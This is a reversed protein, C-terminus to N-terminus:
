GGDVGGSHAWAVTLGRRMPCTAAKWVSSQNLTSYMAARENAHLTSMPQTSDITSSASNKASHGSAFAALSSSRESRWTSACTCLRTARTAEEARVFRAGCARTCM